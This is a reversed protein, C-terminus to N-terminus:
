FFVDVISVFFNFFEDKVRMAYSERMTVVTRQVVIVRVKSM